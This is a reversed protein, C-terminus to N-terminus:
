RKTQEMAVTKKAHADKNSCTPPVSPKVFLTLKQGCEPCKWKSNTSKPTSEINEEM